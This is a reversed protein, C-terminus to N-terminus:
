TFKSFSNIIRLAEALDAVRWDPTLHRNYSADILFVPCGVAKAAKIDNESDGIFYSGGLDIQHRVVAQLMMGPKPKKCECGDDRGHLCVFIDDLPLKKVEAMIQEYDEVSLLGYKIDPQNTILIRLFGSKGMAELAEPVGAKLKWEAFAHPATFRNKEFMATVSGNGRDIADNIVGDRDIFIARKKINM